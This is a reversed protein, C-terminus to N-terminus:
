KCEPNRAIGHRVYYRTIECLGIPQRGPKAYEMMNAACCNCVSEYVCGDCEPVRPWNNAEQNIKEWAAKFGDRLVNGRIMDMRNCPMMTGKWDINFSSRGGGCKLGKESCEHCSGGVPPLKAQDIEKIEFGNMQNLLQFAQVYIDIDPNDHQESRGTEERPIFIASNILVKHCLSRAICVTEAISEGMYKNPTVTLAVPLGSSIANKINEAVQHFARKGTVQEYVDDNPGYLTIQIKKPKHKKFFQVWENDMLYGNTMVLVECGLSHLYLFLEKFGPYALCEGGTLTAEIM